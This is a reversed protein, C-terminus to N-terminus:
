YGWGNYKRYNDRIEEKTKIDKVKNLIVAWAKDLEQLAEENDRGVCDEAYGELANHVTDLASELNM